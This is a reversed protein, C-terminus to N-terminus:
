AAGIHLVLRYGGAEADPLLHYLADSWSRSENWAVTVVHLEHRGGTVKDFGTPTLAHGGVGLMIKGAPPMGPPTTAASASAASCALALLTGLVLFITRMRTM